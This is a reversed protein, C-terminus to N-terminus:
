SGSKLLYVAQLLAWLLVATTVILTASGLFRHLFREAAQLFLQNALLREDLHPLM